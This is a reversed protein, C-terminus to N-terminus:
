CRGSLMSFFNIEEPAYPKLAPSFALKKLFDTRRELSRIRNKLELMFEDTAKKSPFGLMGVTCPGTRCGFAHELNNVQKCKWIREKVLTERLHKLGGWQQFGDSASKCSLVFSFAAVHDIETEENKSGPGCNWDLLFSFILKNLAPAEFPSLISDESMNVNPNM